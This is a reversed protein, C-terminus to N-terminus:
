KESRTAVAASRIVKARCSLANMSLYPKTPTAKETPINGIQLTELETLGPSYRVM